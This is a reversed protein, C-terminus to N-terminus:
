AVPAYIETDDFWGYYGGTLLTRIGCRAIGTDKFVNQTDFLTTGRQVWEGGVEEYLMFNLAEAGQLNIGNWWVSRFHRWSSGDTSVSITGAQGWSGNVVRYLIGSGSGFQFVYGNNMDAGGLAKQNRFVVPSQGSTTWRMWTRVEGEPLNLTSADRCLICDGGSAGSGGMKLSTPASIYYDSGLARYSAGKEFDWDSLSHHQPAILKKANPPLILKDM